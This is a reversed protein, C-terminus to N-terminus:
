LLYFLHLLLDVEVSLLLVLADEEFCVILPFVRVKFTVIGVIPATEKGVMIICIYM